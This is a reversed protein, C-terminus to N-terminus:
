SKGSTKKRWNKQGCDKCYGSGSDKKNFIMHDFSVLVGCTDCYGYSTLDRDIRAFHEKTEYIFQEPDRINDLRVMMNGVVQRHTEFMHGMEDIEAKQSSIQNSMALYSQSAANLKVEISYIREWSKNMDLRLAYLAIVSVVAIICMSAFCVIELPTM